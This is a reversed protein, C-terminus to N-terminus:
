RKPVGLACKVCHTGHIIRMWNEWPAIRITHGCALKFDM